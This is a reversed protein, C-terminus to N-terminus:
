CRPLEEILARKTLEHCLNGSKYLVILDNEDRSIARRGRKKVHLSMESEGQDQALIMEGFTSISVGQDIKQPPRISLHEVASRIASSNIQDIGRLLAQAQAEEFIKLIYAPIGGSYDYIQNAIKDTLDTTIPMVQYRWLEKLFNRYAGDPKFPLLRPGRTRRRLYEESEFVTEAIPTGSFFIATGTDNTLETLFRILPKVRNQRQAVTVANQIEDIVILGVHYNLCLIKIFTAANSTATYRTKLLYDLNNSGVAEDLAKVISLSLSRISADSPCGVFLWLLQKTFFTKGNYKEHEIVQPILNLCRVLTSTKGIGPTGLIASSLAQTSFETAGHRTAFLSNIQSVRNQSTLTHYSETM